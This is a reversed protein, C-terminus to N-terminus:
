LGMIELSQIGQIWIILNSVWFTSTRTSTNQMKMNWGNMKPPTATPQQLSLIHFLCFFAVSVETWAILM